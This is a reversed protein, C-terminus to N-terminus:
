REVPVPRVADVAYAEFPVGRLTRQGTERNFAYLQPEFGQVTAWMRILRRWYCSAAASTLYKKAFTEHNNRAITQTEEDHDLYYRVKEELDSWDAKVPIFNQEPRYPRLLHTHFEEWKLDHIIPASNCLQLYKLRGSYTYGETHVPFRYRCHEHQLICHEKTLPDNINCEAVDAWPKYATLQVLSERLPPNVHTSGRWIAKPFKKHWPWQSNTEAAERSAQSHSGVRASPWAWFAYDPMLWIHTQNSLRALGMVATTNSDKGHMKDVPRQPDDDLSLVFEADPITDPQASSIARHISNLLGATREHWLQYWCEHNQNGQIIFLESQYVLVRVLCKGDEIDLESLRIPSEARAAATAYIPDFLHPFSADCQEDSMAHYRQHKEYDYTFHHKVSSSATPRAGAADQELLESHSQFSEDGLRAETYAEELQSRAPWFLYFYVLFTILAALSTTSLVSRTQRSLSGGIM